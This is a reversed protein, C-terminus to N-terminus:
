VVDIDALCDNIVTQCESMRKLLLEDKTADKIQGIRDLIQRYFRMLDGELLNTLKLIQFLTEGEFCPYILATMKNLPDFRKFRKLTPDNHLVQRIDQVSKSPFTRKFEVQKREEFCLCAIILLLQYTDFQQYLKTGFIEGFIIEDQYLKSTFEGKWTLKNNIVYDMKDLRKKIREYRHKMENTSTARRRRKKAQYTYFSQNLITIREKQEHLKILNLVTNISLKFQSRIPTSVSSTMLQLKRYELDRRDLMAYVFGEKDIGRRGARGAIQFFEHAQLLRFAVGDFKRLSSFCVAKAPMNIGVAFTETTYLVNILGKGFLEEVLGKMIPLLGAHHFGIGCPLIKKLLVTSKLKQIEPASGKLKKTIITQIKQNYSFLKQTGLQEAMTQCGARSFHFFLCPTKDAIKKVLDRHDPSIIKERKKHRSHYYNPIQAADNIEKLTTIGLEFDYFRIHLPVPRVDHSIIKVKHKKITQIWDGLEQANPITASLCLMRVKKHSFIISEEWVYGRERDNIYHIEDFVVYSVDNLMPENTLAMNRYVETTMILVQGDPNKVIDGTMLGVKEEGYEESFEKYKQNSLAKIPATYIVKIGKKIDRQIIYDAIITKGSGTPASVVVSQNKEIAHIADVQFPDLTLGKYQM